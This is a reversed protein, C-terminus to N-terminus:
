ESGWRKGIYRNLFRDLSRLITLRAQENTMSHGGLSVTVLTVPKGLTELRRAMRQGQDIPVVPDDDAQIILMPVEIREAQHFPSVEKANTGELGIRRTFYSGGVYNEVHNIHRVLDLVGNISAACRYLKPTKVAGMAAAYGGYSWGVICMRDPDSIGEDVLWRAGDTVDDQMLGGWQKLGANAFQKGYGTSGRFNPQLVAYGRAALFQTVYWYSRTDRSQPGGHPLVVTPLNNREAGRPVTLYGPIVTGDRAEYAIPEVPSLLGPTLAPHVEGVIDLSKRNRDWLYYVGPVVDSSALVLVRSRDDSMNVLQNVTEPMAKDMSRQLLAMSEDFYRAREDHEIYSVGVAHRTVPDIVIGGADVTDHEFVTEVFEAKALDLKRVVSRGADTQGQVYAVSPDTTFAVPTFSGWPWQELDDSSWNGDHDRMAFVRSGGRFGYGFRLEGTTDTIWYEIEKRGGTVIKYNGNDVNIRRVEVRGDRDADLALLLHRPDGPLWDIVDDQIQPTAFEQSIRSGTEKRKAPKVLAVMKSGDKRVSLLRTETTEVYASRRAFFSMSFVIRDENAWHLWDFDLSEPPPVVVTKAKGSLDSVVLHRRGEMPSFFALYQGDPSLRAGSLRPLSAFTEAPVEEQAMAPAIGTTAATLLLLSCTLLSRTTEMSVDKGTM